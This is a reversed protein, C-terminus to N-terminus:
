ETASVLSSSPTASSAPASRPPARPTRSICLLPVPFQTLMSDSILPPRKGNRVQDAHPAVEALAIRPLERHALRDLGHELRHTHDAQADLSRLLGNWGHAGRQRHHELATM